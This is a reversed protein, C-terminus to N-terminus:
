VEEPVPLPVIIDTTNTANSNKLKYSINVKLTDNVQELNINESNLIIRNEFKTIASVLDDILLNKIAPTIERFQYRKINSGFAPNGFVENTGTLLILAISRNISDFNTDLETAGTTSSFIYPFKISTNYLM